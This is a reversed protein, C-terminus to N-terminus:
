ALLDGHFVYLHLTQLIPKVYGVCGTLSSLFISCFKIMLDPEQAIQANITQEQKVTIESIVNQHQFRPQM